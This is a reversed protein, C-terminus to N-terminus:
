LKIDVYVHVWPYLLTGFRSVFVSHLKYAMCTHRFSNYSGTIIRVCQCVPCERGVLTKLTYGEPCMESCRTAEPCRDAVALHHKETLLHYASFLSLQKKLTALLM